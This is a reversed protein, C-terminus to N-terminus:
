KVGVWGPHDFTKGYANLASIVKHNGQQQSIKEKRKMMDAGALMDAIIHHLSADAEPSLKCEAIIDNVAKETQASLQQYSETKITKAHMVKKNEAFSARLNEMHQRLAADSAWKKGHDLTAKSTARQQHAEHHAEHHADHQAEHNPKALATATAIAITTYFLAALTQRFPKM